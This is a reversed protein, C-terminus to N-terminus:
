GNITGKRKSEIEELIIEFMKKEPFYELFHSVAFRLQIEAMTDTQEQMQEHFVDDQKLSM